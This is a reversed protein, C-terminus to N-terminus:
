TTATYGPLPAAAMRNMSLTVSKGSPEPLATPLKTAEDFVAWAFGASTKRTGSIVPVIQANVQDKAAANGTGRVLEALEGGPASKIFDVHNAGSADRTSVLWRLFDAQKRGKFDQNGSGDWKWGQWVGTLHLQAVDAGRVQAPATVRQDPGTTKQLEGLALILAMRANQRAEQMLAEASTSRLSIASLSLLGVAIITLLIMLSLTVVLAFGGHKKQCRLSGPITM